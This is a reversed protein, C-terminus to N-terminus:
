AQIFIDDTSTAYQLSSRWQDWRSNLDLHSQALTKGALFGDIPEWLAWVALKQSFPQTILVGQETFPGGHAISNRMRELRHVCGQWLRELETCWAQIAATSSTRQKITRLDRGLPLNPATFQIITDHHRAAKDIHFRQQSGIYQMAELFIERQRAQVEPPVHRTLAECLAMDLTNLIADNIWANKMYKELYATWSTEGIRSAVLEIIRINLVISAATPQGLGGRWWRLGDIIDIL